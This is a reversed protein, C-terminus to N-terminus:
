DPIIHMRESVENGCQPCTVVHQASFITGRPPHSKQTKFSEGCNNCIYRLASKNHPNIRDFFDDKDKSWM